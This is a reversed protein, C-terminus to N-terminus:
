KLTAIVLPLLLILLSVCQAVLRPPMRRQPLVAHRCVGCPSLNRFSQFRPLGPLYARRFRGKGSLPGKRHKDRAQRSLHIPKTCFHSWCANKSGTLGEVMLSTIILWVVAIAMVLYAWRRMYRSADSTLKVREMGLGGASMLKALAGPHVEAAVQYHEQNAIQHLHHPALAKVTALDYKVESVALKVILEQGVAEVVADRKKLAATAAALQLSMQHVQHMQHMEKASHKDKMMEVDAELQEVEKALQVRDVGLSHLAEQAALHLRSFCMHYAGLKPHPPTPFAFALISLGGGIFSDVSISLGGGIFSDSPHAEEL